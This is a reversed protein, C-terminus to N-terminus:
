RKPKGCDEGGFLPGPSPLTMSARTKYVFFQSKSLPMSEALTVSSSPAPPASAYGAAQGRAWTGEGPGAERPRLSCVEFVRFM